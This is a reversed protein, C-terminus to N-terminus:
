PASRALDGLALPYPRRCHAPSTALIRELIEPVEFVARNEIRRVRERYEPLNRVIEDAAARVSRFSPRVVGLGNSRVWETNWREQPMTWANRTVIAPLGAQVAESLSGPGPKGVFYDAMHMWRPVDQTFGVVARPARAPLANLARVLERNRGCMLILQADSLEKAIRIMARSGTGGFLVLGTPAEPDLGAEVRLARRDAPSPDYFDPRLIMGSALHVRAPTCGADLAQARAHQTGCVLHQDVEPEIWFHPPLDAMDTMVTVFPVRPCALALGDHLARNFNPILSVVLDPRSRRWHDALRRVLGRHNLRIWAQFVKLEQGLGLTFGSALRKNYIDEPEIGTLRRFHGKPDLVQNLSVPRLDWPRGQRRISQELAQAAARHGGGANLWILELTKDAAM